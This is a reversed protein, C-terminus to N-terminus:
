NNLQLLYFNLLKGDQNRRMIIVDKININEIEIQMHEKLKTKLTCIIISLLHLCIKNLQLLYFSLIKCGRNGKM